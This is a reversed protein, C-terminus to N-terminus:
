ILIQLADPHKKFLESCRFNTGDEFSKYLGRTYRKEKKIEGYIGSNKVIQALQPLLPVAVYKKNKLLQDEM